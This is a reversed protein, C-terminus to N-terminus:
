LYLEVSGDESLKPFSIRRAKPDWTMPKGTYPNGLDAAHADIFAQMREPAINEAHAMVKLLALRRLGEINHGKEIYAFCQPIAIQALIEGMSNYLAALGIKKMAKQKQEEAYRQPPLEALRAVEDFYAYLRNSTANHKFILRAPSWPKLTNWTTLELGYHDYLAERRLVGAVSNEGKDFPKLIEQILMQERKSLAGSVAIEAAVRLDFSLARFAIFKPILTASSSAVFRWYNMDRQLETLAATTGGHYAQVAIRLMKLEQAQNTSAFRPVPAYDGYALPEAYRALSLLQEYRDLLDANDRCLTATEDPHTTVYALIGTNEKGYFSPLKGKLALRNKDNFSASIIEATSKGGRIARDLDRIQKEGAAVSSTGAPADIGLMALWANGPEVVKPRPKALEHALEPNLREDYLGLFVFLALYFFIIAYKLRKITM